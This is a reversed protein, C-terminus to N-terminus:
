SKTRPGRAPRGPASGDARTRADQIARSFRSTARAITKRPSESRYQARDLVARDSGDLAGAARRIVEAGGDPEDRRQSTAPAAIGWRPKTAELAHRARPRRAKARVDAFSRRSEAM